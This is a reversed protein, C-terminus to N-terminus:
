RTPLDTQGIWLVDVGEVAAIDEVNELGKATEIQVIVMLERNATEIKETVDGDQYDDHAIGFAAGRHGTPPYKTSDVVLRAQEESEVMPVMTGMAGIDLARALFHYQTAPVRVFPELDAARATAMLMRITEISWGTHEMDFIIFEAGAAAAIRSLGTTCFEFAMTGLAFGGESLKHKVKNTRM